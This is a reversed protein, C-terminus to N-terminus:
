VGVPPGAAEGGEAKAAEQVARALGVAFALAAIALAAALCTLLTPAIPARRYLCWWFDPVMDARAQRLAQTIPEDASPPRWSSHTGAVLEPLAKVAARPRLNLL